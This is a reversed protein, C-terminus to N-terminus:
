VKARGQGERAVSQRVAISLVLFTGSDEKNVLAVKTKTGPKNELCIGPLSSLLSLGASGVAPPPSFDASHHGLLRKWDTLSPEFVKGKM